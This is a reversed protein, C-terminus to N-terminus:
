GQQASYVSVLRCSASGSLTSHVHRPEEQRPLYLDVPRLMYIEATTVDADPWPPADCLWQLTAMPQDM